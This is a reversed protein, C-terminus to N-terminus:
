YNTHRNFPWQITLVRQPKPRIQFTLMSYSEASNTPMKYIYKFFIPKSESHRLRKLSSKAKKASEKSIWKGTEITFCSYIYEIRVILYGSVSLPSVFPWRTIWQANPVEAIEMKFGRPRLKMLVHLVHACHLHIDRSGRMILMWPPLSATDFNKTRPSRRAVCYFSLLSFIDPSFYISLRWFFVSIKVTHCKSDNNDKQFLTSNCNM